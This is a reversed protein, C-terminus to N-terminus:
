SHPVTLLGANLDGTQRTAMNFNNTLTSTASRHQDANIAGQTQMVNLRAMQKNYRSTARYLPDFGMRMRHFERQLSSTANSTRNSTTTTRRLVNGFQDLLQMSSSVSRDLSSNDGLIRLTVESNETM